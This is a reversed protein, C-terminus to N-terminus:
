ILRGLKAETEIIDDAKMEYEEEDDLARSILCAVVGLLGLVALWRWEFVFGMGAFFFGVGALFPRGSPKPMHIDHVDERRTKYADAEGRQKLEWWADRDHITPIV